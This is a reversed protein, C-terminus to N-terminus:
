CMTKQINREFKNQIVLTLNQNPMKQVTHLQTCNKKKFRIM